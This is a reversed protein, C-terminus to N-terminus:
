KSKGTFQRLSVRLTGRQKQKQINQLLFHQKPQLLIGSHSLDDNTKAM